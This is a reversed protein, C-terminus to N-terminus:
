DDLELDDMDFYDEEVEIAEFLYMKDVKGTDVAYDEVLVAERSNMLEARLFPWADPTIYEDLNSMPVPNGRSSLYVFSDDNPDYVIRKHIPMDGIDEGILFMYRGDVLQDRMSALLEEDDVLESLDPKEDESETGVYIASYSYPEKLKAGRTSAISDAIEDLTVLGKRYMEIQIQTPAWEEIFERLERDEKEAAKKSKPKGMVKKGKPTSVAEMIPEIEDLILVEPEVALRDQMKYAIFAGVLLGVGAGTIGLAVYLGLDEKKFIM